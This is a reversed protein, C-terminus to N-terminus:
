LNQIYKETEKKIKKDLDLIEQLDPNETVSHEDMMKRITAAIELFAIKRDLFAQVAIENAANMVCPLTGGKRGAEYAYDVCPFLKNNIKEFTLNKDILDLFQFKTNIRMPYSLGYLIPHHMDNDSMNALMHGDNFEVIAHVLSQRHIVAKIKDIPMQFLHMAELVENGKNMLTASDITNKCGMKWTPHNLAQEVTINRFQEISSYDRFPGGSATIYLTKVDDPNRGELCQFLGNHESDVPTLQVKNKSIEDMVINGAVVLTEKNALVIDKKARAASVTPMIGTSGVLSNSVLDAEELTALKVLGKDGKYVPIDVQSALEDAKEADGVSVCLPKFEEIQKRLIDIRTNASLAVARFRDPHHRIIDMTQTGVSGTSGLISINRMWKELILTRYLDKGSYIRKTFDLRRM